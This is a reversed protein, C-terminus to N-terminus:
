EMRLRRFTLNIRASLPKKTKPIQHKWFHQTPGKMLLLSGHGLPITITGLQHQHIHKLQFNRMAGFSVSAIIPNKGLEKENDQHWGMSDKGDRYLNLLCTTFAVGAINEIRNKIFSLPYNWPESQMRLGSYTYELGEDGYLATLRPQFIEKGFIKIKDHRWNIENLLKQLYENSEVISFFNEFLTIDADPLNIRMMPWLLYTGLFFILM